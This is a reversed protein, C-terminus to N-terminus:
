FPHNASRIIEGLAWSAPYFRVLEDRARALKSPRVFMARALRRSDTQGREIVTRCRREYLALGLPATTRDFRSLEDALGAAARMAYSAGVGATPMFGVAADGCLAVRGKVWRPSRIDRMPWAYPDALDDIADGVVPVHEILNGMERRLVATVDDAGMHDAPGGAGCMVQGPAPYAGFICGAGWWERAVTPDFRNVDAWWTWLLWGSDYGNASGFVMDRVSSDIGDCAIVVDFREETGDDFCVEVGESRQLLSSVTVGRRFDVDGVSSHLLNLLASRGIMLLPGVSGTLVSMDFSQLARGSGNAMEYRELVISQEVLEEYTGLGHLVCNGLPYLGLAYGPGANPV